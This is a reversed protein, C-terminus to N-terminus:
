QKLGDIATKVAANDKTVLLIAFKGGTIIEVNDIIKYFDPDYAARDGSSLTSKRRELLEALKQTDSSNKAKLVSIEYTGNDASYSIAYDDLLSFEECEAYTGDAWLSMGFSDLNNEGKIYTTTNEYKEIANIATDSIQKATIDNPFTKGGGCSCLLVVSLLVCILSIKKM